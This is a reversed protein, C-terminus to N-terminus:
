HFSRLIKKTWFSEYNQIKEMDKLFSCLGKNSLDNAQVSQAKKLFCENLKNDKVRPSLIKVPASKKYDKHFACYSNSSVSQTM